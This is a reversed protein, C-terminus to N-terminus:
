SGKHLFTEEVLSHKPRDNVFRWSNLRNRGRGVRLIGICEEDGCTVKDLSGKASFDHSTIARHIPHPRKAM